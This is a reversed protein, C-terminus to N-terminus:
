AAGPAFIKLEDIAALVQATTIAEMCAPKGRASPQCETFFKQRCPSCPFAHYIVRAREGWPGFKKPSQPGFLAVLPVGLAAGLHMIGSDNCVLLACRALVAMSQRLTTEGALNLPAPSIKAAIVDALPRDSKAGFLAIRVGHRRQLENAVVAFDDEHWARPPNTCFPHLGVLKEDPRLGHEALFRTAWAREDDSIWAELQRDVVPVGDARLVDLFCEVEHADRRYVCRRTLLFGRGETDYGVRERAGATRALLASSFSRKLVYVKDFRARRLDRLFRLKAGISGHAATRDKKRAPDWVIFEDVYPIGQVVEADGPAVMWAIHADPHARRLNRLFPVTLITDGLFRYRLVLIRM